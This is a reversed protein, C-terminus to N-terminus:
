YYMGQRIELAAPFVFFCSISTIATIIQMYNFEIAHSAVTRQTCRNVRPRIM